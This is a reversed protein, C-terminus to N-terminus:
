RPPLLPYGNNDFQWDSFAFRYPHQYDPTFHWANSRGFQITQQMSYLDLRWAGAEYQLFWPSCQRKGVPFRIVAYRKDPSIRTTEASCEGQTRLLNDAQAPTVVWNALMRRTAETYIMLDPRFNHAQMARLYASVTEAPTSGPLVDPQDNSSANYGKGIAAEGTAGAGASGSHWPEGQFGGGLEAHQARTILLETTALIGDAIRGSRFFPQMQQRELYSVMADVYVGELGMSVELRVKDEEPDIVLLLGKGSGSSSGVGMERYHNNAYLNIDGTNRATIIRYDIDHDALLLKHYQELRQIQATSLLRARDDVLPIDTRGCASLFLTIIFASILRM